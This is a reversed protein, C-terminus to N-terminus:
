AIPPRHPPSVRASAPQRADGVFRALPNDNRARPPPNRLAQPAPHYSVSSSALMLGSTVPALFMTGDAARQTESGATGEAALLHQHASGAAYAHDHDVTRGNLYVHDHNHAREVFHHDDLPGVIPLSLAFLAAALLLMWGLSPPQHARSVPRSVRAQRRMASPKPVM